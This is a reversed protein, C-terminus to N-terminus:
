RPGLWGWLDAFRLLAAGPPPQGEVFWRGHLYPPGDPCGALPLSRPPAPLRPRPRPALWRNAAWGPRHHLRGRGLRAGRREPAREAQQEERQHEALEHPLPARGGERRARRPQREEAVEAGQGRRGFEGVDVHPPLAAHVALYAAGRFRTPLLLRPVARARRPFGSRPGGVPLRGM